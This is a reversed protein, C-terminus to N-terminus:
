IGQYNGTLPIDDTWLPEGAYRNTVITLQSKVLKAWSQTEVDVLTHARAGYVSPVGCANLPCSIALLVRAGESSVLVARNFSGTRLFGYLRRM